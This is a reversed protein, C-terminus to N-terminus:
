HGPRGTLTPSPSTIVLTPTKFFSVASNGLPPTLTGKAPPSVAGSAPPTITGTATPSMTGTVLGPTTPPSASLGNEEDSSYYADSDSTTGESLPSSYDPESTSSDLRKPDLALKMKKQLRQLKQLTIDVALSFYAGKNNYPSIFTEIEKAILSASADSLLTTHKQHYLQQSEESSSLDLMQTYQLWGGDPGYKKATEETILLRIKPVKNYIHQNSYNLLSLLNEKAVQMSGNLIFSEEEDELNDFNKIARIIADIKEELSFEDINNPVQQLIHEKTLLLNSSLAAYNFIEVLNLTIENSNKKDNLYQKAAEPSPGDILFLDVQQGKARLIKAAEFALPCGFSYGVILYITQNTPMIAKMKKVVARANQQLTSFSENRYYRDDRYIVLPRKPASPQLTFGLATFERYNGTVGPIFFLPIKEHSKPELPLDDAKKSNQEAYEELEVNVESQERFDGIQFTM